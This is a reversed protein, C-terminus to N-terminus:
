EQSQGRGREVDLRIRHMHLDDIGCADFDSEDVQDVVFGKLKVDYAGNEVEDQLEEGKEHLRMFFNWSYPRNVFMTHIEMEPNAIRIRNDETKSKTLLSAFTEVLLEHVSEDYFNECCFVVDPM